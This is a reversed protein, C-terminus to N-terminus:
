CHTHKAQDGHDLGSDRRNNAIHYVYDNVSIFIRNDPWSELWIQDRQKGDTKQYIHESIYPMYRQITSGILEAIQEALPQILVIKRHIRREKFLM